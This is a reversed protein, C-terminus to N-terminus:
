KQRALAYCLFIVYLPKRKAENTKINSHILSSLCLALMKPLLNQQFFHKVSIKIKSCTILM